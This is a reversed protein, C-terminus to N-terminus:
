HVSKGRDMSRQQLMRQIDAVCTLAHIERTTMKLGYVEEIAEILELHKLSDWAQLTVPGTTDTILSLPVNMVSAVLEKVPM